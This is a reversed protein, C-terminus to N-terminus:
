PQIGLTNLAEITRQRRVCISIAIPLMEGVNTTPIRIPVWGRNIALADKLRDKTAGKGSSHGGVTFLSGDLEIYVKGQGFVFDATFKRGTGIWPSKRADSSTQLELDTVLEWAELFALEHANLM